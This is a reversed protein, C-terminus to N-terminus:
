GALSRSAPLADEVAPLIGTFIAGGEERNAARLDGGHRRLITRAVTLGLGAGGTQRNRSSEGRYLPSFIHPLDRPAIGPGSDAISFACHDGARDCAVRVRGGDPTYHLANDLLNEIARRLLHEDGSVTCARAPIELAVTIDRDAARPRVSEALSRLLASLDVPAFVPQEDLYELRSYTFLDAVRRELTEAQERCIALYRARKEVTAAIGTQLGELYGRLSFLPTRLDHVVASIFLRRQQEVEAQREISGRLATSMSGFAQAVEAVEALAPSPLSIDLDGAAIQRAADSM